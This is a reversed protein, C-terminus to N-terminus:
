HGPLFISVSNWSLLRYTQSFGAVAQYTRTLIDILEARLWRALGQAAEGPRFTICEHSWMQVVTVRKQKTNRLVSRVTKLFHWVSCSPNDKPIGFKIVDPRSKAMEKSCVEETTQWKCCIKPFEPRSAISCSKKIYDVRCKEFSVSSRFLYDQKGTAFKRSPFKQEM